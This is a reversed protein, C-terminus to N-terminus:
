ENKILKTLLEFNFSPNLDKYVFDYNSKSTIGKFDVVENYRVNTGICEREINMKDCIKILLNSLSVIQKEEYKDWYLYDRWKKEFVEKKYIDGVYNLYKNELANKKLWGYNELVIVISKKDLKDNGMFKTHQNDDLIKYIEGEKDVVYNPIYPNKGNYRYKLSNIYNKVSRKSEALIIQTKKNSTEVTKFDTSKSLDVM